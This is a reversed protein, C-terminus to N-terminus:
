KTARYEELMQKAENDGKDASERLKASMQLMSQNALNRQEQSLDPNLSLARYHRFATSYDNKKEAELAQEAFDRVHPETKKFAAQFNTGGGASGRDGGCGTLVLLSIAISAVSQIARM